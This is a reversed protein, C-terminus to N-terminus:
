VEITMQERNLVNRMKILFADFLLERVQSTEAVNFKM